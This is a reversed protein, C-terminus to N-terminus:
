APLFDILRKYRDVKDVVVDLRGNVEFRRKHKRGVLANGERSPTYRDDGWSAAAIFGYTMSELLEIFMGNPRVDTIIATFRTRPKRDLEREFFELLKVKVSDREAETSNVETLSLHEGLREVRPLDYGARHGAPAAHGTKELYHEFVRHVVLDAYRRIPSTFHTYDKKHLGFHGDATHRYAAKKLSRLLQTRLTHGQPHHSLTALLKVLEARHTLDGVTLHFTALLGRLEILRDPDPDDHVRYLSPLKHTRTLRAVAENAALMFEEILQHSEDNDIRELREAYGKADVFIKTEPMDLDLSGHAMRDKRLKGAIAWLARIWTQLDTLEADSLERLARGTSGTQHKPPLPLARIQEFDDTFLLAYAQKYTLRKRSRIVTNAYSTDKLKGKRDFTLFVAKCLRDQAEVLSCLGNSLKEPLMPVVVGVLYTSNGRRQAERDLASGHPVYTSVDAIHVGVKVDGEPLEEYSLADDFDKADDPDITFVAKLRYDLREALDRPQVRDPLAAAEREVEAPFETALNYKLFIGLLEARPEHTRGLRATITGAIPLERRPWEALKLAVKDGEKPVPSIGSKAPDAVHIEHGFRPDDPVVVFDRRGRRLEGVITDRERALVRIVGGIKEGPRKGRRGPFERALVRDGPLAVGTDEPFIQLSPEAAEGEVGERVVYASGGLRFQIRGVLEHPRLRPTELPRPAPPEFPPTAAAATAVPAVTAPTAPTARAAPAIPTAPARTARAAPAPVAGHPVPAPSAPGRRAKGRHSSSEHPRSVTGATAAKAPGTIKESVNPGIGRLENRSPAAPRTSAPAEKPLGQSPLRPAAEQGRPSGTQVAIGAVSAPKRFHRPAQEASEKRLATAQRAPAPFNGAPAFMSPVEPPPMGPGRRTPVFTARSETAPKSKRVEPRHEAVRGQRDREFNGGKILRRVEQALTSAEKKKLQLRRSLEFENAPSYGPERLLALLRDRLSMM